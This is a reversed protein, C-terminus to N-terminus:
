CYLSFGVNEYESIFDIQKQIIDSDEIWENKGSGAWKDEKGQKYVALGAVLSVDSNKTM